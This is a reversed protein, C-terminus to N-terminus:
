KPDVDVTNDVTNDQLAQHGQHLAFAIRRALELPKMHELPPLEPAQGVALREGYRAPNLRAAFWMRAQVRTKQRAAQASDAVPEDAIDLMQDVLTEAKMFRAHALLQSFEPHERTWHLMTRVSPMWPDMSIKRLSSGDAIRNAIDLALKESYSSPRGV